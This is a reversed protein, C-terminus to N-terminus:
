SSTDSVYCLRVMLIKRDPIRSLYM